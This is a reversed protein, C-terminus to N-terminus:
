QFASLFRSAFRRQSLSSFIFAAVCFSGLCNPNYLEDSRMIDFANVNELHKEYAKYENRRARLPMPTAIAKDKYVIVSDRPCYNYYNCDTIDPRVVDVGEKELFNVFTTLDENAEDVVIQPYKGAPITLEDKVDAYNIHRLSIDIEPVTANHAHGVIVKKLKGWENKSHM